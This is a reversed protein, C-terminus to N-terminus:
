YYKQKRYMKKKGYNRKNNIILINIKSEDFLKMEFHTM